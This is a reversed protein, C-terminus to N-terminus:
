PFCSARVLIRRMDQILNRRRSERNEAVKKAKVVVKRRLEGAVEKERGHGNGRRRTEIVIGNKIGRVTRTVTNKTNVIDRKLM